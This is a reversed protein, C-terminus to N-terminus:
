RAKRRAQQRKKSKLVRFIKRDAKAGKKLLPKVLKIMKSKASARAKPKSRLKAGGSSKRRGQSPRAPKSRAAQAPSDGRNRVAAVMKEEAFEKFGSKKLEAKRALLQRGLADLDLDLERMKILMDSEEERIHHRVNEALV